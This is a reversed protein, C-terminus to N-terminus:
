KEGRWHAAPRRARLPATKEISLPGRKGDFLYLRYVYGTYRSKTARFLAITRAFISQALLLEVSPFKRCASRLM